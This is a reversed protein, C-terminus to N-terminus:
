KEDLAMPWNETSGHSSNRGWRWWHIQNRQYFMEAWIDEQTKNHPKLGPVRYIPCLIILLSEIENIKLNKYGKLIITM